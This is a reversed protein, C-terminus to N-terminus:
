RVYRSQNSFFYGCVDTYIWRDCSEVSTIWRGSNDYNRAATKGPKHCWHGRACLRYFHFDRNPAIVLCISINKAGSGLCSDAYGDRRVAASMNSCTLATWVQGGARGPQAFTNNRYNSAYNYCNNYSIYSSGNWFSFDTDSTLYNSACSQGGGTPGVTGTPGANPEELPQAAVIGDAALQRLYDDVETDPKESTELLWATASKDKDYVGGIRFTSPLKAKGWAGDTESVATVIFGRYGLGGTDASLPLMLNPVALIRDVLQAEEMDTLIWTPNPMGSYIDLEVSLM